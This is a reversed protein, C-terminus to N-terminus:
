GARHSDRSGHHAPEVRWDSMVQPSPDGPYAPLGPDNTPIVGGVQELQTAFADMMSKMQAQAARAYSRVQELEAAAAATDVEAPVPDLGLPDSVSYTASGPGGPTAWRILAEADRRTQEATQMAEELIQREQARVQGLREQSDRSADQVIEEAILQAQSFMEVVQDNVHGGADELEALERRLGQIQTRLRENEARLPESDARLRENEALLERRENDTAQVQDALLDLFERVEHEDLGRMRRAFTEDRIASPSRYYPFDHEDINTM